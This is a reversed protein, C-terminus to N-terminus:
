RSFDRWVDRRFAECDVIRSNAVILAGRTRAAFARADQGKKPDPVAVPQGCEAPPTPLM